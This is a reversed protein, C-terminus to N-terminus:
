IFCVFMLVTSLLESDHERPRDKIEVCYFLLSAIFDMSRESELVFASFKQQTYRDTIIDTCLLLLNDTSQQARYTELLTHSSSCKVDFRQKIIILVIM